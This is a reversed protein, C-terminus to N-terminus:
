RLASPLQFVVGEDVAPLADVSTPQDSLEQLREVVRTVLDEPASAGATVGVCSVGDIWAPDIQDASEVLYSRAGLKPRIPM